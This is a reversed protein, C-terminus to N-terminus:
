LDLYECLVGCFEPGISFFGSIHKHGELRQGGRGNLVDAQRQNALGPM